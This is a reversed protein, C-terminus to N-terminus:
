EILFLPQIKMEIKLNIKLHPSTTTDHENPTSDYIKEVGGGGEGGMPSKDSRLEVKTIGSTYNTGGM